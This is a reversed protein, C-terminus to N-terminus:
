RPPLPRSACGFIVDVVIGEQSQVQNCSEPCLLIENNATLQWGESCDGIDDRVILTSGASSNLVVNIKTLDIEQGAPPDAFSYRCPAVAGAVRALGARLAASFDPATTMDMHCYNPGNVNCGSVGTGGIVAATSMWTRNPESGPSGILFTRTGEAAVRTVEEVIPQPDVDRLNGSENVCGRELTPAGDTILLMFREGPLRSPALGNDFAYEYADHTPTSTRLQVNQIADALVSRHPAGTAGLLDIPVMAGTNVCQTVNGPTENIVSDINPYFLLGVAVSSPLGPGTTGVVAELLADRTVEWKTSNQSGPARQNMSSSVDIVLQIVSTLEEGESEWGACQDDRIEDLEAPTIVVSGGDFEQPVSSTGGTGAGISVGSGATAGTGVNGTNGVGVNGTNGTGINGTGLNGATPGLFGDSDGDDDDDSSCGLVLAPASIGLALLFVTHKPM